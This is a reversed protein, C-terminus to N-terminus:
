LKSHCCPKRSKIGRQIAVREYVIGISNRAEGVTYYKTELFELLFDQVFHLLLTNPIVQAFVTVTNFQTKVKLQRHYYLQIDWPCRSTKSNSYYLLDLCSFVHWVYSTLLRKITLLIFYFLIFNM